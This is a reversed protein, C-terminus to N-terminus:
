ASQGTPAVCCRPSVGAEANGPQMKTEVRFEEEAKDWRAAGAYSWGWNWTCGLYKRVSICPKPSNRKPKHCRDSCLITREWQRAHGPPIPIHASSLTSAESPLLGSARGLYYLLDPNGPRKVLASSLNAVAAEYRETEIQAVGLAEMHTCGTL